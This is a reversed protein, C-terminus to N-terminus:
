ELSLIKSWKAKSYSQLNGFLAMQMEKEFAKMEQSKFRKLFQKTRVGFTLRSLPGFSTM